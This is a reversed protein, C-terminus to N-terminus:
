FDYQPAYGPNKWLSAYYDVIIKKLMIKMKQNRLM